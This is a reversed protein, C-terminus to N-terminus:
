LMSVMSTFNNRDIILFSNDDYVSYNVIIYDNNDKMFQEIMNLSTILKSKQLEDNDENNLYYDIDIKDVITVDSTFVDNSNISLVNEAYEEVNEYVDLIVLGEEDIVLDLVKKNM